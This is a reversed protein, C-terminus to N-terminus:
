DTRLAVVPDLRAARRAPLFAAAVAVAVLLACTLAFAALDAIQVGFLLAGLAYAMPLSLTAGIGVGILSLRMADRTILTTLQASSAGLAIRIGMERTRRAVAYGMVGYLGLAALLLAVGGFASLLASIGREKDARDKLTDALPRVDFVPLAPDLSRIERRLVPLMAGPAAATRLIVTDRDFLPDQDISLYMFPRPDETAEDYKANRVVGVVRIHKRDLVIERGIPDASGWLDRALRENIVAVSPAGITDSELIPRGAVIPMELADFHGPGAANLYARAETDAGPADKASVVTSMMRGSLPTVNTVGVATVGPLAGLRERLQRRFAVRREPTYNQLELDYSATLVGSPNFGLDIRNAKQLARLTLGGALLLVLSLALQAVVFIGQLRSRGGAAPTERLRPLLAGRTLTLAPVLGFACVSFAALAATFLLVRVDPSPSLGRFEADPLTKQLLDTAWLSVLLGTVAGLVALVSSETLLQRLLRRRSAGIAARISLETARGMGRALLLNAVNACAILLVIGTVTLLLVSLPILEGRSEPALGSRASSVRVGRRESQNPYALQLRSAVTALAAQAGSISAGPRLRGMVSLWSAERQTLLGSEATRVQSLHTLPMWVDAAEGLAPGYFGDAAVGIVTLQRGNITIATGIVDASAGFREQWVRYSLVLSSPSDVRDDNPGILRGAAPRVGLASFYSGTVLQGRLRQPDGGGGLSVPTSRFAFLQSFQDGAADRYDFYEPYSMGVERGREIWLASVWVLQDPNAIGPMPRFLTANAFTFITSNVGIGLALTAIAGCAFLPHRALSRLAYKLDM